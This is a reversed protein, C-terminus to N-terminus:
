GEASTERFNKRYWMQVAELETVTLSHGHSEKHVTVHSGTQELHQVLCSTKEPTSYPDNDSTGIFVKSDQHRVMSAEQLPLTPHHLIAGQFVDPYLLLMAAAMNAGNSYGLAILKNRNFGYQEAAEDLFQALEAARSRINEEDFTGDANRRFYRNMGREPENGRIGLLAAGPDLREGLDILNYEDGGTGHLLLITPADRRAAPKHIHIM